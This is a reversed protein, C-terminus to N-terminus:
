TFTCSYECIIRNFWVCVFVCVRVHLYICVHVYVYVYVYQVYQVHVYAGQFITERFILWYLPLLCSPGWLCHACSWLVIEWPTRSTM